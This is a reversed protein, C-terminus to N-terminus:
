LNFTREYIVGMAEVVRLESSGAELHKSQQRTQGSEVGAADQFSAACIGLTLRVGCAHTVCEDRQLMGHTGESAQLCSMRIDSGYGDERFMNRVSKVAAFNQQLGERDDGDRIVDSAQM